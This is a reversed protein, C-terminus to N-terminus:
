AGAKAPASTTPKSAKAVAKAEKAAQAAERLAKVGAPEDPTRRQSTVMLSKPVPPAPVKSWEALLDPDVPKMQPACREIPSLGRTGNDKRSPAALEVPVEIEAKPAVKGLGISACDITVDSENRFTITVAESM